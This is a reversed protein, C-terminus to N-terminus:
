LRRRKFDGCRECQLIYDDAYYANSESDRVRVKEHLKWKHFCGSWLFAFLRIM